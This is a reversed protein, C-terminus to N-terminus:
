FATHLAAGAASITLCAVVLGLELAAGYRLARRMRRWASHLRRQALHPRRTSEPRACVMGHARGPPVNRVAERARDLVERALAAAEAKTLHREASFRRSASSMGSGQKPMGAM